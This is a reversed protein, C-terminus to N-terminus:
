PLSCGFSALPFSTSTMSSVCISTVSSEFDNAIILPILLSVPLVDHKIVASLPFSIPVSILMSDVSLDPFCLENPWKANCQRIPSLIEIAIAKSCVGTLGSDWM